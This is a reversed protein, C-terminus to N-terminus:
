DVGPISMCALLCSEGGGSEGCEGSASVTGGCDTM